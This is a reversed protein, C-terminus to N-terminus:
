QLAVLRWTQVNNPLGMTAWGVDARATLEEICIQYPSRLLQGETAAPVALCHDSDASATHIATVADGSYTLVRGAIVLDTTRVLPPPFTCAACTWTLRYIGDLPGAADVPAAADDAGGCATLAAAILLAIPRM